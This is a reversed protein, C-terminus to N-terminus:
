RRPSSFKKQQFKWGLTVAPLRRLMHASLALAGNASRRISSARMRVGCVRLQPRPSCLPRFFTPRPSSVAVRAMVGDALDLVEDFNILGEQNEIKAIVKIDAGRAGLVDRIVKVDNGKRM